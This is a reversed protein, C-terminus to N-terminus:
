QFLIRQKTEQHLFHAAIAGNAELQETVSTVEDVNRVWFSKM